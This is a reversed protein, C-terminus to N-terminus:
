VLPDVYILECPTCFDECRNAESSASRCRGRKEGCWSGDAKAPKECAWAGTTTSLNCTGAGRCNPDYDTATFCVKTGSAAPRQCNDLCCAEDGLSQDPSCIAGSELQCSRSCCTGGTFGQDCAEDDPTNALGDAGTSETKYNGCYAGSGDTRSFWGNCSSSARSALNEKIQDRSCGDTSTAQASFKLNNAVSGDVAYQHM